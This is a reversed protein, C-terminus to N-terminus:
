GVVLMSLGESVLILWSLLGGLRLGVYQAMICLHRVTTSLVRRMLANVMHRLFRVHCIVVLM